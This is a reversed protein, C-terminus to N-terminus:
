LSFQLKTHPLQYNTHPTYISCLACRAKRDLKQITTDKKGGEVQLAALAATTEALEKVGERKQANLIEWQELQAKLQLKLKKMQTKEKELDLTLKEKEFLATKAEKELAGNMAIKNALDVDLQHCRTQAHKLDVQLAVNADQM